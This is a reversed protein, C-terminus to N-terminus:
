GNSVLECSMLTYSYLLANFLEDNWEIINHYAKIANELRVPAIYKRYILKENEISSCKRIKTGKFDEIYSPSDGIKYYPLKINSLNTKDNGIVDWHKHYFKADFTNGFLLPTCDKVVNALNEIPKVEFLEKFIIVSLSKKDPISIIQGLSVGKENIPVKFIDGVKLKM